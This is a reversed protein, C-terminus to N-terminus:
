QRRAFCLRSVRIVREAANTHGPGLVARRSAAYLAAAGKAPRHQFAAGHGPTVVVMAHPSDADLTDRIMVGAKAWDSTNQVSVVRATLTVAGNEISKHV